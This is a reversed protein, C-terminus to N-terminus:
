QPTMLSARVGCFTLDREVFQVSSSSVLPCELVIMRRVRARGKLLAPQSTCYTADTLGKSLLVDTKLMIDNELIIKTIPTSRISTSPPKEHDGRHGSM